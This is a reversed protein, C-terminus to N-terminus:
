NQDSVVIYKALKKQMKYIASRSKKLGEMRERPTPYLGKEKIFREVFLIYNIENTRLDKFRDM